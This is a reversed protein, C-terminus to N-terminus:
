VTRETSMPGAIQRYRDYQELSYILNDITSLRKYLYELEQQLAEDNEGCSAQLNLPM